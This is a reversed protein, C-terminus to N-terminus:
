TNANTGGLLINFIEEIESVREEVTKGIEVPNEIWEEVEEYDDDNWAFKTINDIPTADAKIRTVKQYYGNAMM